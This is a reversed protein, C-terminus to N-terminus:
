RRPRYNWTGDPNRSITYRGITKLRHHHRCLRCLNDLSTPGNSAFDHIHDIQLGLRSGCGPVVCEPDRVTLADRIAQPIHRTHTAIDTVRGNRRTVTQRRTDPQALADDLAEDPVPQGEVTVDGHEDVIYTVTARPGKGTAAGAALQTLADAM